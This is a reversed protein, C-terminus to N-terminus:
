QSNISRSKVEFEHKESFQVNSNQSQDVQDSEEDESLLKLIGSKVQALNLREQRTKRVKEEESCNEDSSPDTGGGEGGGSPSSVSLSVDEDDEDSVSKKLEAAAILLTRNFRILERRQLSKFRM